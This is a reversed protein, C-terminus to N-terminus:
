ENELYYPYGLFFKSLGQIRGCEMKESIKLPIAM